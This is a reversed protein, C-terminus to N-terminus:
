RRRATMALMVRRRLDTMGGPRQAYRVTTVVVHRIMARGHSLRAALLTVGFRHSRPFLPAYGTAIMEDWCIAEITRIAAPSLEERWGTLRDADFQGHIRGHLAADIPATRYRADTDGRNAAPGMGLATAAQRVPDQSSRLAEYRIEIVRQACAIRRVRAIYACWHRAAYVISGRAMDFGPKEPVPTRLMSGVVARPDRIVHFFATDAFARRIADTLYALSELKIVIAAPPRRMAATAIDVLLAQVDDSSHGAVIRDWDANAVGIAASRPDARILVALAEGAVRRGADREILLTLPFGLEPFVFVDGAHDSLMRSFLTSGSRNVYFIVGVKM